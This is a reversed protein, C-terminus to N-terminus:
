SGVETESDFESRSGDSYKNWFITETLLAQFPRRGNM